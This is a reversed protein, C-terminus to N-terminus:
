KKSRNTQISRCPKHRKLHRPSNGQFDCQNCNWTIGEHKNQIHYTLLTRNRIKHECIKCMVHGDSLSEIKDGYEKSTEKRHKTQKNEPIDVFLTEEVKLTSEFSLLKDEIDDYKNTIEENKFMEQLDDIHKSKKIEIKGTLKM